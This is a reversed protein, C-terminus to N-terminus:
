SSSAVWGRYRSSILESLDRRPRHGPRARVSRPLGGIVRGHLGPAADGGLLFLVDAALEARQQAPTGPPQEGVQEARVAAQHQRDEREDHGGLKGGQGARPEDADPDVLDRLQLLRVVGSGSASIMM